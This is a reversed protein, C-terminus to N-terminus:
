LILVKSLVWQSHKLLYLLVAESEDWSISGYKGKVLLHARKQKEPAVTRNQTLRQAQKFFVMDKFSLSLWVINKYTIRVPGGFRGETKEDSM